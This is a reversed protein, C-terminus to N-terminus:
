VKACKTQCAGKWYMQQKLDWDYSIFYVVFEFELKLNIMQM